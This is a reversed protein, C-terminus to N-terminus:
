KRLFFDPRYFLVPSWTCYTWPHWTLVLRRRNHQLIQSPLIFLRLAEANSNPVTELQALVYRSLGLHLSDFSADGRNEDLVGLRSVATGRYETGRLEITEIGIPLIAAYSTIGVM